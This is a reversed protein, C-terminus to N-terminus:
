KSNNQELLKGVVHRLIESARLRNQYCYDQFKEFQNDSVRISIIKSLKNKDTM